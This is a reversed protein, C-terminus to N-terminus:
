CFHFKRLFTVPRLHISPQGHIWCNTKIVFVHFYLKTKVRITKREMASSYCLFIGNKRTNKQTGLWAATTTVCVFGYKRDCRYRFLDLPYLPGGFDCEMLSSILQFVSFWNKKFWFNFDQSLFLPFPSPSTTKKKEKRKKRKNKRRKTWGGWEVKWSAFKCIPLM